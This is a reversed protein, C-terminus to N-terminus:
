PVDTMYGVEVDCLRSHSVSSKFCMCLIQGVVFTTHNISVVITM